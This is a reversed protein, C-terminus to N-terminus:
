VGLLEDLKARAMKGREVGDGPLKHYTYKGVFLLPIRDAGRFDRLRAAMRTEIDRKDEPTEQDAIAKLLRM